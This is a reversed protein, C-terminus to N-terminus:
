SQPLSKFFSIPEKKSKNNNTYNIFYVKIFFLFTMLCRESLWPRYRFCASRCGRAVPGTALVPLPTRLAALRRSCSRRFIPAWSSLGSLLLCAHPLLTVTISPCHCSSVPAICRFLVESLCFGQSHARLAPPLLRSPPCPIWTGWAAIPLYRLRPTPHCSSAM